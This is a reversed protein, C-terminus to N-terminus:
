ADGSCCSGGVLRMVEEMRGSKNHRRVYSKLKAWILEIPNLVCHYLALRVVRHGSREALVDVAYSPEVKLMDDEFPVNNQHLWMKIDEIKLATTPPKDLQRSHYSANDM